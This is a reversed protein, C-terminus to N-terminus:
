DFLEDLNSSSRFGAKKAKEFAAKAEHVKNQSLLEIAFWGLAEPDHQQQLYHAWYPQHVARARQATLDGNRAAQDLWYNSTWEMPATLMPEINMQETAYVVPASKDYNLDRPTIKYVGQALGAMSEGARLPVTGSIPQVSQLQQTADVVLFAEGMFAPMTHSKGEDIAHSLDALTPPTSIPQNMLAYTRSQNQLYDLLGALFLQQKASGALAGPWAQQHLLQIQTNRLKLREASQPNVPDLSFEMRVTHISIVPSPSYKWRRLAIETAKAFTLDPLGYQTNVYVVNGQQDVVLKALAFGSIGNKAAEVPYKPHDRRLTTRFVEQHAPAPENASYVPISHQLLQVSMRQAQQQQSETVTTSLQQLVDAAKVHRLQHAFLFYAYARVPDKTEEEGYLAMVGLNFAAGANGLSALHAFEARAQSYNKEQYFKVSQSLDAQAIASVALLTAMVLQKLM